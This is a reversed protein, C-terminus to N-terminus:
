GVALPTELRSSGKKGTVANEVFGKANTSEATQRTSLEALAEATQEVQDTLFPPEEM